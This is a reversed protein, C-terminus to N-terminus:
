DHEGAGGDIMHQCPQLAKRPGSAGAEREALM